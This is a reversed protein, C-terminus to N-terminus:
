VTEKETEDMKIRDYDSNMKRIEEEYVSSIKNTNLHKKLDQQFRKLDNVVEGQRERRMKYPEKTFRDPIFDRATEVYNMYYSSLIKRGEKELENEIRPLDKQYSTMTKILSDFPSRTDATLEDLLNKMKELTKRSLDTKEDSFKKKLGIPIKRAAEMKKWRKGYEPYPDDLHYYEVGNIGSCILGLFFLFVSQIGGFDFPDTLLKKLAVADADTQKKLKIIQLQDAYSLEDKRELADIEARLNGINLMATRYHALGLNLSFVLFVGLFVGFLSRKRFKKAHAYRYSIATFIGFFCNLLSPVGALVISTLLAGGFLHGNMITEFLLIFVILAFHFFYKEPPVIDATRQTLGNNERFADLEAQVDKEFVRANKYEERIAALKSECDKVGNECIIRLENRFNEPNTRDLIEQATKLCDEAKYSYTEYAVNRLAEVSELIETEGPLPIEPTKKMSVAYAADEGALREPDLDRELEERNVKGLFHPPNDNLFYKNTQTYAGTNKLPM